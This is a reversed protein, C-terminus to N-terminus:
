FGDRAPEDRIRDIELELTVDGFEPDAGVVLTANREHALTAAYADALSIGGRAKIPAVADFPVSEITLGYGRLVRLDHEGTALEEEGPVAHNPDGTEFRAVKYVIEVATPHSIAGRAAEERVDTLLEGVTSAGREGYLFAILPEADFVYKETM